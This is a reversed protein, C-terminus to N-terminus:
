PEDLRKNFMAFALHLHQGYHHMGWGRDGNSCLLNGGGDSACLVCAQAQTIKQDYAFFM